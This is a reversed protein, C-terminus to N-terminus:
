ARESTAPPDPITRNEMPLALELDRFADPLVRMAAVQEPTDMPPILDGMDRLVENVRQAGSIHPIWRPNIEIGTM